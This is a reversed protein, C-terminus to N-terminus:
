NFCLLWWCSFVFYSKFVVVLVCGVAKFVDSGQVGPLAECGHKQGAGFVLWCVLMVAWVCQRWRKATM